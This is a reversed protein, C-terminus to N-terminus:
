YCKRSRQRCRKIEERACLIQFSDSRRPHTKPNESRFRDPHLFSGGIPYENRMWPIGSRQSVSISGHFWRVLKDVDLHLSRIPKAAVGMAKEFTSPPVQM